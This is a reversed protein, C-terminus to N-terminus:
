QGEEVFNVLFAAYAVVERPDNVFECGSFMAREVAWQRLACTQDKKREAILESRIENNARMIAAIDSEDSM